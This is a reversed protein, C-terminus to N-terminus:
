KAYLAFYGRRSQIRSSKLDPRTVRIEVTRWRGDRATNTSTYGLTYQNRIQAVIKEYAAEIDKMALPFFAQGGTAEAIERLRGRQSSRVSSPQHEMFGVAHITVDSARVLTMVDNFRSTSRTDGGDTYVVLITRGENEGAGDLFVGLADYMATWGGPERGRIREVVRPFDRQGYTAVRVETDFDVLTIDEADSLTNLFRIAATRALRIDEGMSGSTDFLLGLHLPLDSTGAGGPAFHTITQRTGDEFVEFDGAVLNDIVTGRRDTVTVGFTVLDLRSRFVAQQAPLAGSLGCAAMLVAAALRRAM